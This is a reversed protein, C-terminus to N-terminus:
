SRGLEALRPDTIDPGTYTVNTWHQRAAHAVREPAFRHGGPTVAVLLDTVANESCYPLPRLRLRKWAM